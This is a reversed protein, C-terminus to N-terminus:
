AWHVLGALMVNDLPDVFPVVRVGYAHLGNSKAECAAEYVLNGDEEGTLSLNVIQPEETFNMGDTVGFVFQALLEEKKMDGPDLTLKVTFPKGCYVTDGDLGDLEISQIATTNFRGPISQLWAAVSRAKAQRDALADYLQVASGHLKPAYLPFACLDTDM